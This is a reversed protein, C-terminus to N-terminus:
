SAPRVSDLVALVPAYAAKQNKGYFMGGFQVNYGEFTAVLPWMRVPPLGLIRGQQNACIPPPEGPKCAQINRGGLQVYYGTQLTVAVGNIDATRLKPNGVPEIPGSSGGGYRIPLISINTLPKASNGCTLGPFGVIVANGSVECGGYKRGPLVRWSEPVTFALGKYTVTKGGAVPPVGFSPPAGSGVVCGALLSGLLIAIIAIRTTSAARM